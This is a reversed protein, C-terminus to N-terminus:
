EPEQKHLALFCLKLAEDNRISGFCVGDALDAELTQILKYIDDKNM